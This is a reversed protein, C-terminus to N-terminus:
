EALGIIKKIQTLHRGEHMGSLALWETATMEGFYPHPFTATNGVFREFLPMMGRLARTTEDLSALSDAVPQKGTPLVMEPAELKVDTIEKMRNCFGDINFEGDSDIGAAEAKSLLKACIRQIGSGVIAVHEAIEAVSWKEGEVREASRTEDLSELTERLRERVRDNTAYIDAISQYKM